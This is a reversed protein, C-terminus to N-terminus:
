TASLILQQNDAFAWNEIQFGTEIGPLAVSQEFSTASADTLELMTRTFETFHTRLRM